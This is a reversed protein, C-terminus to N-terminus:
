ANSLTRVDSRTFLKQQFTSEPQRKVIIIHPLRAKAQLPGWLGRLEVGLKVDKRAITGSIDLVQHLSKFDAELHCQEDASPKQLAGLVLTGAGM